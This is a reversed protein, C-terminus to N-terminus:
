PKEVFGTLVAFVDDGKEDQSVTIEVSRLYDSGADVLKIQYFWQREAMEVDGSMDTQAQANADYRLIFEAMQNQAVWNAVTKDMIRTQSRLSQSTASVISVAAYGFIALAVLVEILTLGRQKM